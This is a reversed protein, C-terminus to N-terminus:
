KIVPTVLSNNNLTNFVDVPMYYDLVFDQPLIGVIQLIYGVFESCVFENTGASRFLKWGFLKHFFDGIIVKMSYPKGLQQISFDLVQSFLEDSIEMEWEYCVKEKSLFISLNEFNVELGSAQCVVTQYTTPVEFRVYVHSYDTSEFLRIMSSFINFSSRKSLGFIIKKM